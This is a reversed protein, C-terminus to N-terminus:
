FAIAHPATWDIVAGAADIAVSVVNWTQGALISLTGAPFVIPADPFFPSSPYQWHLPDGLSPSSTLIQWTLTDPWIGFVPATGFEPLPGGDLSALTFGRVTNAPINSIQLFFDGNGGGLTNATIGFKTGPAGLRYTIEIIPCADLNTWNAATANPDSIHGNQSGRTTASFSGDMRFGTGPTTGGATTLDILLDNGETPDFEFEGQTFPIVVNFPAATGGAGTYAPININGQHMIAYDAGINNAFTTSVANFANTSSGLALTCTDYIGATMDGSGIGDNDNRFAIQTITIPMQHVFQDVPYVWQWRHNAASTLPGGQPPSYNGDANEWGAPLTHTHVSAAVQAVSIGCFLALAALTISISKMTKM